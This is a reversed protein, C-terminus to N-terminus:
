LQVEGEPLPWGQALEFQQFVRLVDYARLRRALQRASDGAMELGSLQM